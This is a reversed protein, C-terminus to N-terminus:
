LNYDIVLPFLSRFELFSRSDFVVSSDNNGRGTEWPNNLRNKKYKGSHGEWPHCHVCAHIHLSPLFAM